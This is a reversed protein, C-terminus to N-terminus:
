AVQATEEQENDASKGSYTFAIKSSVNQKLASGGIFGVRISKISSSTVDKAETHGTSKFLAKFSGFNGVQVRNGKAVYKAILDIFGEIVAKVDVKNLTSANSLDEALDDLDVKDTYVPSAYYKQEDRNLPNVRKVVSYQM